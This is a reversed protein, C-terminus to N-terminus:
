SMSAIRQSVWDTGDLKCPRAFRNDTQDIFARLPSKQIHQHCRDTWGSHRLLSPFVIPTGAHQSQVRRTYLFVIQRDAAAHLRVTEGAHVSIDRSRESPDSESDSACWFENSHCKLSKEPTELSVPWHGYIGDLLCPFKLM